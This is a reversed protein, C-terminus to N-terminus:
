EGGKEGAVSQFGGTTVIVHDVIPIGMLEGALAVRETLEVDDPSPSPDGSPHNHVLVGAAASVRVLFRFVERPHVHVSTLTGRAVEASDVVHNRASLALVWFTEVSLGALRPRMLLAVDEPGRVLPRAPWPGHVALRGLSLAAVIQRARASGLGAVPLLESAKARSLGELGGARHLVQRALKRNADGGGLLEAILEEV